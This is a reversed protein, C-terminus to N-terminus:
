EYTATPNQYHKIREEFPLSQPRQKNKRDAFPLTYFEIIDKEHERLLQDEETMWTVFIKSGEPKMYLRVVFGRKPSSLDEAVLSYIKKKAELQSLHPVDFAVPLPVEVNEKGQEHAEEICDNVTMLISKVQTEIESIQLKSYKLDCARIEKSM